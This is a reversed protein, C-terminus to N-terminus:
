FQAREEGPNCWWWWGGGKGSRKNLDNACSDTGGDHLPALHLEPSWSDMEQKRLRQLMELIGGEKSTVM